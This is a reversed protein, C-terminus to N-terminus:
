KYLSLSVSISPSKHRSNQPHHPPFIHVVDLVRHEVDRRWKGNVVGRMAIIYRRMRIFETIIPISNEFLSM